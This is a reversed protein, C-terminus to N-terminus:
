VVYKIEIAKDFRLCKGIRALCSFFQAALSGMVEACVEEHDPKGHELSDRVETKEDWGPVCGMNRAWCTVAHFLEHTVIGVTLSRPYFHLTGFCPVGHRHEAKNIFTILEKTNDPAYFAECLRDKDKRAKQLKDYTPHIVVDIYQPSTRPAIFLRFKHTVPKKDKKVKRGSRVAKAKAKLM